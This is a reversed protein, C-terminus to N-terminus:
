SQRSGELPRESDEGEEGGNPRGSGNGVIRQMVDRILPVDVGQDGALGEARRVVAADREPDQLAFGLDRKIEEIDRILAARLGVQRVLERDCEFVQDRLDALRQLREAEDPNVPTM